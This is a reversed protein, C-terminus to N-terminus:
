RTLAKFRSSIGSCATLVKVIDLFDLVHLLLDDTLQMIDTAGSCNSESTHAASTHVLSDRHAEKGHDVDPDETETPSHRRKEDSKKAGEFSHASSSCPGEEGTAAESADVGEDLQPDRNDAARGSWWNSLHTPSFIVSLPSGNTSSESSSAPLRGNRGRVPIPKSM